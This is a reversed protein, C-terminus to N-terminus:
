EKIIYNLYDTTLRTVSSIVVLVSIVIVITCGLAQKILKM